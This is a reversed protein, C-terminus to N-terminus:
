CYYVIIKLTRNVIPKKKGKDNIKSETHLNWVEESEAIRIDQTGWLM